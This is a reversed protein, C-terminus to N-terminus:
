WPLFLPRPLFYLIVQIAICAWLPSLDIGSIGPIVRRFPALVPECLSALVSQLPSYGGPAVLSLLAYVIIAWFYIWLVAYVLTLVVQQMWILADDPFPLRLLPFGVAVLVSAIIVVAVVTATDIKRVPPLIRRLPIILPNTLRVVAQCIPNRFDARALQLLLRMLVVFLALSLLEGVILALLSM